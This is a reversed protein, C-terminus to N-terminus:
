SLKKDFCIIYMEPQSTQIYFGYRDVSVDNGSIGNSTGRMAWGDSTLAVTVFAPCYGLGHALYTGTTYHLIKVISLTELDSNFAFERAETETTANRGMKTVKIVPKSM